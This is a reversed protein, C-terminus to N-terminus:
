RVVEYNGNAKMFTEIDDCSFTSADGAITHKLVSTSLGYRVAYKPNNFDLLLGHIVGSAFADGGGIRDFINFRIPDTLEWSLEDGNLEFYYGALSNDTATYVVRDTGFIYRLNYKKIM